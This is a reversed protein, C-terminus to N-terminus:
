MNKLANMAEEYVQVAAKQFWFRAKKENEEVGWGNLYFIGIEYQAEKLGNTAALHFWFAAERDDKEVGKGFFYCKGVYFQAILHGRFGSQEWYSEAKVLDKAVGRGLFYCKGLQFYAEADGNEAGEMYLKVSNEANEAQEDDHIDKFILELDNMNDNTEWM